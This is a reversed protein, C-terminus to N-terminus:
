KIGRVANIEEVGGGALMVEIEEIQSPEALLPLDWLKQADGSEPDNLAGDELDTPKQPMGAIKRDRGTGSTTFVIDYDTIENEPYDEKQMKEIALLTEGFLRPGGELIKVRNLPSYDLSAKLDARCNSCTKGKPTSENCSPCVTHPTRDLVNVIYRKRARRELVKPDDKALGVLQKEIPCERTSATNPCNAAMGKGSNAENVWHKWVLQARDNLMRLVTRHDPSFKVYSDSTRKRTTSFDFTDVFPM